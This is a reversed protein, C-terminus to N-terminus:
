REVEARVIGVPPTLKQGEAPSAQIKKVVDMGKVVRGFAAFGQGDPNRKGGFDLEPQDGICLFFDSTATDPADRAMSVTGNLHHLGTISTRELAIPPFQAAKRLPNIAAQIVEIKVRNDPQNGMTVTRHFMGGNYFGGNVYRLFNATTAPAHVLDLEMEIDGLQTHLVVHPRADPAIVTAPLVMLLALAM